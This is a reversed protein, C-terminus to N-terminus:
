STAPKVPPGTGDKERAKEIAAQVAKAKEEDIWSDKTVLTTQSPLAVVAGTRELTEMIELLLAEQTMLYADYGRELIYCYLEVELAYEAFRLFNVRASAGEVKVNQKLVGRMEELVARVHNPSLDYRLRVIQNCLFKDRFRLNEVTSSAMIGNPISLLTRDLTRLRTSRLGIDEVM